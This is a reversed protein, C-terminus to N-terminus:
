RWTLAFVGHAKEDPASGSSQSSGSPAVILTSQGGETDIFYIETTKAAQALVAACAMLLPVLRMGTDYGINFVSPM